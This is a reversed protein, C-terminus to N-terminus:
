LLFFHLAGRQRLSLQRFHRVRIMDAMTPRLCHVPSAAPSDADVYGSISIYILNPILNSGAYVTTFDWHWTSSSFRQVKFRQLLGVSPMKRTMRVVATSPLNGEAGKGM